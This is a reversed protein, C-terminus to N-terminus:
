PRVSRQQLVGDLAQRDHESLRETGVQAPSPDLMLARWLVVGAAAGTALLLLPKVLTRAPASRRRGNEKGMGGGRRVRRGGAAAQRGGSAPARGALRAAGGRPPAAPRSQRRTARGSARPGAPRHDFGHLLLEPPSGRRSARRLAGGLLDQGSRLLGPPGGRGHLPRRARRAAHGARPR